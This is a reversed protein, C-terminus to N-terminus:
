FEMMFGLGFQNNTFDLDSKLGVSARAEATLWLHNIGYEADLQRIASPDLWDMLFYCGGGGVGVPAVQDGTGVRVNGGM